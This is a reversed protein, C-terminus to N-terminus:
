VEPFQIPFLVFRRDSKKLLPEECEPLDVQGVFLNRDFMISCTIYVRCSQQNLSSQGFLSVNEIRYIYNLMNVKRSVVLM